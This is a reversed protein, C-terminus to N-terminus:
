SLSSSSIRAIFVGPVCQEAQFVESILVHAANLGFEGTQGFKSMNRFFKSVGLFIKQLRLVVHFLGLCQDRFCHDRRNPVTLGRALNVDNARKNVTVPLEM